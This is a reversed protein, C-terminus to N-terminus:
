NLAIAMGPLGVMGDFANLAARENANAGAARNLLDLIPM